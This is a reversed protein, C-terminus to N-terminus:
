SVAGATEVQRGDADVEYLVRCSAAKIKDGLPVISAADVECALFRESPDAFRASCDHYRRAHRPTPGFHLGKGCERVPDFDPATVTQGVPYHTGHGSRLDQDVAKYVTVKGKAPKLAYFDLWVEPTANDLDPIIIPIGGTTKGKYGPYQQVPVCKTAEVSASGSARVSASGYAAVSASGYAAVSASGYARVSASVYARVIASGSAEVSASGYAEVIASGYAAVSASDYATVIASGSALVIASRYAEVIASGYAVVIASGYAAVSASGSAEVRASGSAVVFRGQEMHLCTDEDNKHQDYEAQTTITICTM